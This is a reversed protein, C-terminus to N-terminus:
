AQNERWWLPTTAGVVAWCIQIGHFIAGMAVGHAAAVGLTPAFFAFASDIAGLQGPIFDALSGGVLNLGQAFFARSPSFQTSAAHILVGMELVQLMRNCVALALARRPVVPIEGLAGRLSEAARGIRAYRRRFLGGLARGRGTLQVVAFSVVSILMYITVAITIASAGTLLYAALACPAAILAGSLLALAQNTTAIAMSRPGGITKALMAAKVAESAARGVPMLSMAAYGILHIRALSSREIDGRARKSIAYTTAAECVIRGAEIALLLPIWPAKDTIFHVLEDTGLTRWLTIIATLGLATFFIHIALRRKSKRV